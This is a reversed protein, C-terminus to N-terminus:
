AHLSHWSRKGLIRVKTSLWLIRSIKASITTSFLIQHVPMSVSAFLWPHDKIKNDNFLYIIVKTFHTSNLYQKRIISVLFYLLKLYVQQNVRWTSSKSLKMRSSKRSRFFSVILIRVLLFQESQEVTVYKKSTSKTVKYFMSNVQKITIPFKVHICLIIM